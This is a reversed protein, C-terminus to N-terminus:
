HFITIQKFVWVTNTIAVYIFLLLGCLYVLSIGYRMKASTKNFYKYIGWFHNKSREEPSLNDGYVLENLPTPELEKQKLARDKLEDLDANDGGIQLFHGYDRYEKIIRPSFITFLINGLVFFLASFFFIQWSFPLALDLVYLKNSITIEIENELKSFLKATVPVVVLWIYSSRIIKEDQIARLKDWLFLYEM